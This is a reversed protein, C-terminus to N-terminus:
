RRFNLTEDCFYLSTNSIVSDTEKPSEEEVLDEDKKDFTLHQEHCPPTNQLVANTEVQMSQWQASTHNNNLLKFFNDQWFNNAVWQEKM